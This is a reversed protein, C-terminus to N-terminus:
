VGTGEPLKRVAVYFSDGNDLTVILGKDDTLFGSQQIDRISDMIPNEPDPKYKDNDERYEITEEAHDIICTSLYECFDEENM